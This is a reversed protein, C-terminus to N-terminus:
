SLVEVTISTCRALGGDNTLFLECGNELATALHIADVTQFGHMAKVLTARRFVSTNIPLITVDKRAFFADYLRLLAFDSRGLPFSCCETRSLESAAISDSGHIQQLRAQARLGFVAPNEIAYIIINSDVYVRM